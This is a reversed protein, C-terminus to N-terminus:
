PSMDRPPPAAYECRHSGQRRPPTSSNVVVLQVDHLEGPSYGQQVLCGDQVATTGRVLEVTAAPETDHLLKKRALHCLQRKDAAHVRARGTKDPKQGAEHLVVICSRGALTSVRFVLHEQLHPLAATWFGPDSCLTQAAYEVAGGSCAVAALVVERDAKFEPAARKLASADLSVAQLVFGRDCWLLPQVHNLAHRSQRAAALAVNKNGRLKESAFSLAYGDQTVAALVVEEDDILQPSAYQLSSGCYAVADMVFVRNAWLDQADKAAYTLAEHDNRFAASVVDLDRRLQPSAYQLASGAQSVAALAVEKDDKLRLSASDLAYGSQQVAAMVVEKDDRLNADAGELAEGSRAVLALWTDRLSNGSMAEEKPVDKHKKWFGLSKM